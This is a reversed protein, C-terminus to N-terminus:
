QQLCVKFRSKSGGMWGPSSKKPGKDKCIKILGLKQKGQDIKSLVIDNDCGIEEAVEVQNQSKGSKSIVLNQYKRLFNVWM